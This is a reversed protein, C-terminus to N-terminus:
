ENITRCYVNNDQEICIQKNNISNVIDSIFLMTFFSVITIAILLACILGEILDNM